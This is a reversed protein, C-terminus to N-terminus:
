PNLKSLVNQVALVMDKHAKSDDDFDLGLKKAKARATADDDKKEIRYYLYWLGGSVTGDKDYVYLPYNKTDTVIKAFDEYLEADLTAASAVLTQYNLGQKQSVRRAVTDDAGAERLNLVAVYGRKALWKFDGLDFPRLGSDVDALATNVNLRWTQDDGKPQTKDNDKPTPVNVRPVDNGSPPFSKAVDRRYPSPAQPAGLTAPPGQPADEPTQPTPAPENNNQPRPTNADARAGPSPDPPALYTAPSPGDLRAIPPLSQTQRPPPQPAPLPGVRAPPAYGSTCSNCPRQSRCCPKQCTHCGTLVLGAILLSFHITRRCM